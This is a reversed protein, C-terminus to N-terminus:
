GTTTTGGGLLIGLILQIIVGLINNFFLNFIQDILLM